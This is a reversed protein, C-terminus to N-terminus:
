DKNSNEDHDDNNEVDTCEDGKEVEKNSNENDNDEDDKCEVEEEAEEMSDGDHGEDCSSWEFDTNDDEYIDVEYIEECEEEYYTDKYDSDRDWNAEYYPDIRDREKKEFRNLELKKCHPCFKHCSVFENPIRAFMLQVSHLTKPIPKLWELEATKPDFVSIKAKSLGSLWKDHVVYVSDNEGEACQTIRPEKFKPPLDDTAYAIWEMNERDLIEYRLTNDEKKALMIGDGFSSMVCVFGLTNPCEITTFILKEQCLDTVMLKTEGEKHMAKSLVYLLKGKSLCAKIEVKKGDLVPHIEKLQTKTEDISMLFVFMGAQEQNKKKLGTALIFMKDSDDPFFMGEVVITEKHVHFDEPLEFDQKQIHGKMYSLCSVSLVNDKQSYFDRSQGNSMCLSNSQKHFAFRLQEEPHFFSLNSEFKNLLSWKHKKLDYAYIHNYHRTYSSYEYKDDHVGWVILVNSKGDNPLAGSEFMKRLKECRQLCIGSTKVYKSNEVKELQEVSIKRIDLERFMDPFHKERQSVDFDVWTEMFNLFVLKPVYSLLPDRVMSEISDATLQMADPHKLVQLMNEQMFKVIQSYTDLGYEMAMLSLPICNDLTLTIKQLYKDFAYKMNDFQLYDAVQLTDKLTAYELTVKGTYLFTLVQRLAEPTGVNIEIKGNLKEQLGSNYLSQFYPLTTLVCWHCSMEEDGVMVVVDCHESKSVVQQYLYQLMVQGYPEKIDVERSEPNVAM